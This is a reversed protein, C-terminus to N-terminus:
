NKPTYFYEGIEETAIELISVIKCIDQSTFSVKNNMKRSFSADSIGMLKAMEGNSGVKEIIRARLKKYDFEIDHAM